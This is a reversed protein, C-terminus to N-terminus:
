ARTEAPQPPQPTRASGAEARRRAAAGALLGLSAGVLNASLDGLSVERNPVQAQGAEGWLGFILAVPRAVASPWAFALTAGVAGYAALHALKDAAPVWDPQPPIPPVPKLSLWAVLAM